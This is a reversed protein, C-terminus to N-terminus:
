ALSRVPRAPAGMAVVQAPLDRTVIAGAGVVTGEGVTVGQIIVAGTGITVNHGLTVSGSINAGPNVTVFDGFTCDHGVTTNLNLHAHRGIAINTTISVHACAVFGEGITNVAGARRARDSLSTMAAWADQKFPVTINLGCGGNAQFEDLAAAFGDTAVLLADYSLDQGTQAAFLAHIKPSKSHGIPNGMVAYRDTM